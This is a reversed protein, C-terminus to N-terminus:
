EKLSVKPLVTDKGILHISQNKDEFVAHQTSYNLHWKTPAKSLDYSFLDM